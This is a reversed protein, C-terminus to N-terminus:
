KFYTEWEDGLSWFRPGDVDMTKVEYGSYAFGEKSLIEADARNIRFYVQIGTNGLIISRIDPPVQELTQHAMVLSLGYKRAESLVVAFSDSVFNQFEDLYLTWPVRQSQPIDSRSFAAMQIKALFLGNLLDSTAEGLSGKDTSLLLIKGSDMVERLNFSSKPQSLMQYIRPDALFQNVKNTIPQTWELQQRKTLSDFNEFDARVIPNSVKELVQRRFDQDALFPPLMSLPQGAEGLAVLLLFFINEMRTGFFDKWQPQRKCVTTFEQAQKEPSVGPLLELPNFLVTYKPDTPDILVVRDFIEKGHQEAYCALFGKIDTILDSHPSIVGFGWHNEIDQQIPFELFKTKGSGTGGVCYAHLFRDKISIKLMQYESKEEDWYWGLALTGATAEWNGPPASHPPNDGGRLKRTRKRTLLMPAKMSGFGTM